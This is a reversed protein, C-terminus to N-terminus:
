VKGEWVDREYIELLRADAAQQSHNNVVFERGARGIALAKAPNSLLDIVAAAFSGAGEAIVVNQGDTLGMGEAGVSTTVVPRGYAMAEIIKGKIGSGVRLPAISIRAGQLYPAVDPVPGTVSIAKRLGLELIEPPPASGVINLTADQNAERIRPFIDNAFWLM